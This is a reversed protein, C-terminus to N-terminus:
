DQRSVFETSLMVVAEAIPRQTIKRLSTGGVSVREKMLILRKCTPSNLLPPELIYSRLKSSTPGAQPPARCREALNFPM